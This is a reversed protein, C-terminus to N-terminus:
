GAREALADAKECTKFLVGEVLAIKYNNLIERSEPETLTSRGERRAGEFVESPRM